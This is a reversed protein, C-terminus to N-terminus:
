WGWRIEATQENRLDDAIPQRGITGSWKKHSSWRHNYYSAAKLSLLNELTSSGIISKPIERLRGSPKLAGDHALDMAMEYNGADFNAEAMRYRLLAREAGNGGRLAFGVWAIELQRVKADPDTETQANHLQMRAYGSLAAILLCPVIFALWVLKVTHKRTPRVSLWVTVGAAVVGTIWYIQSDLLFGFVALALLNLTGIGLGIVKSELEFRALQSRALLAVVSGEAALLAMWRPANLIGVEIVAQIIPTLLLILGASKLASPSQAM